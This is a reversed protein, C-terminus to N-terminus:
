PTEKLRVNSEFHLTVPGLLGSPATEVPKRYRTPITQYHNNLTNYVTVELTNAGAKSEESLDLRWPPCTLVRAPKGNMSVGCSVGVGGLDLLVRQDAQEPSLTFVKGYVAGGSYCRLADVRAWDGLTLRGQGCTLKVPEPFAAGGTYGPTHKVTMTLEAPGPAAQAPTVRYIRNFNPFTKDLTFRAAAGGFTAAVLEGHLTVEAMQLAPPAGFSYVAQPLGGGFCDFPLVAPHDYWRMALPQTARDADIGTRELVLAARGFADYRVLLPTYGAKLGVTEGPTRREGNLWVASPNVGTATIVARCAEAAYVATQYLRTEPKADAPKSVDYLGMDYTGLVFFEDGVKGNLGHHWNQYAPRNEAGERWSFCFPQWAYTKGGVTIDKEATLTATKALAQELADAETGPALPGFARFQPGHSYTMRTPMNDTSWTVQRAEAGIFGDFGPLRFDGWKNYCTPKLAFSWEGDLTLPPAPEVALGTLTVRRGDKEVVATKIGASRAYGTVSFGARGQLILATVGDLDCAVVRAAPKGPTFVVLLPIGTGDLRVATTGNSNVTFTPIATQAGTWPDWLEPLGQARFTCTDRQALDMIFYVDNQGIRRHLAKTGDPGSFDPPQLLARIAQAAGPKPTPTASKHVDHVNTPDPAELGSLDANALWAADATGPKVRFAEASFLTRGGLALAFFIGATKNGTEGPGDSGAVALIDGPKLRLNGTWPQTYSSWTTVKVGNLFLDASNDCLLAAQFEGAAGSWVHKFVAKQSPKHTWVWRGTFHQAYTRAAVAGAAPSDSADFVTGGSAILTKVLADTQPDGTGTRDTATPLDGLVVVLGGAQRFALAKELSAHRIAFLSPLVLARYAEGAVALRGDRVEARALSEADIFDFDTQCVNMLDTGVAHALQLSAKGRAPDAVLPEHPNIIAVDAVHDGQSLLYSLREFYKLFVPMHAWYPMHFHYCPPAWEWWGGKTTYYLGHLNLLTSGYLFNRNSSEFLTETSAQWGLSHYGEVWVRPRQYLHAISSGVKNKILDASSGPTDFGPATYWRMARFYDGFELPNKGRSAPDCAYIMGRSSHWDFIPKFYSEESLSVMVENFDLRVKATEPGIDMFLAALKPRIDYGKRRAFRDAFETSWLRGDGALRLEDQFFYNLARHAESPTRDLFPSLFRDIVRRGSEPNLPDLTERRTEATVTVLRWRGKPLEWQAAQVDLALGSGPQLRGDKLAFATVSVASAEAPASQVGGDVDRHRESLVRANLADDTIGLQRFLNDRGPWDLTYGSLGIGMGRKASETAMFAFVKWWEDSFIPPEVAETKWGDSRSHSYNIQTGSVGAKHLEELQWLLREKDLKDGTWWWFPVEGYGPPPTVFTKRLDVRPNREPFGPGPTLAACVSSATLAFELGAVFFRRRM